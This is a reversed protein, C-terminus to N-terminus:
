SFDSSSISASDSNYGTKNASVTYSGIPVSTFTATGTSDTTATGSTAGSIEVTADGLPNGSGDEVSAVIDGEEAQKKTLTLTVSATPTSDGTGTVIQLGSESEVNVAQNHVTVESSGAFLLGCPAKDSKYLTASGSDGGQSMAGTLIQDDMTVTGLDGGYNVNVSVSVQDVTGETVGTTRGSKIVTDGVSPRRPEGQPTALEAMENLHEADQSAWALDVTAGDQVPVYDALTASQDSSTGGDASGPQIITDGASANNSNAYVHNNSSTFQQSGDTLIYSVTGATIDIHGVSVGGPVPRHKAKRDIADPDAEILVLPKIEGVEQVQVDDRGQLEEPVFESQASIDKVGVILVENGDEDQGVGVSSVNEKDSLLQQGYEEKLEQVESM